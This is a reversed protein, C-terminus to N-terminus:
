LRLPRMASDEVGVQAVKALATSTLGAWEKAARMKEYIEKPYDVDAAGKPTPLALRRTAEQIFARCKRLTANTRPPLWWAAVRRFANEGYYRLIAIGMCYPLFPLNKRARGWIEAKASGFALALARHVGEIFLMYEPDIEELPCDLGTRRSWFATWREKLTPSRLLRTIEADFDKRKELSRLIEIAVFRANIPDRFAVALGPVHNCAREFAENFIGFAREPIGQEPRMANRIRERLHYVPQYGAYRVSLRDEYEFHGVGNDAFGDLVYHCLGCEPCVINSNTHDCRYPVHCRSCEAPYEGYFM